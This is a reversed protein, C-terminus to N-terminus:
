IVKYLKFAVTDLIQNHSIVKYDNEKAIDEILDILSQTYDQIGCKIIALKNNYNKLCEPQSVGIAVEITISHGDGMPKTSAFLFGNSQKEIERKIQNMVDFQDGALRKM